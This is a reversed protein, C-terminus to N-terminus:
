FSSRLRTALNKVAGVVTEVAQSTTIGYPSVGDLRVAHVEHTAGNRKALLIFPTDLHPGDRLYVEVQIAVAPEGPWKLDFAQREPKDQAKVEAIKGNFEGDRAM